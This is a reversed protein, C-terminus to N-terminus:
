PKEFLLLMNNAPMAITQRLQLGNAAGLQSIKELDRLGMQPNEARLAADFRRNGESTYDGGHNFPGYVAFLGQASLVGAVGGFMSVVDQWALIHATNATYAYHFEHRPWHGATAVDLEVPGVVNGLGADELWALIGPHKDSLDSCHWVLHPMCRAFHVAHQGTGSAIELVEGPQRFHRQLAGAIPAKNRECAECCPKVPTPASM